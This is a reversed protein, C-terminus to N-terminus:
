TVIPHGHGQPHRDHDGPERQGSRRRKLWWRLWVAAAATLLLVFVGNDGALYDNVLVTILAPDSHPHPREV